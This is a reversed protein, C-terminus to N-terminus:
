QYLTPAKFIFICLKGVEDSKLRDKESRVKEEFERKQEVSQGELETKKTKM